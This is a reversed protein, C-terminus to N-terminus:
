PKAEIPNESFSESPVRDESMGELVSEGLSIFM